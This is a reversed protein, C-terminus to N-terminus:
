VASKRRRKKRRKPAIGYVRALINALGSKEPHDHIWMGTHPKFHRRFFDDMVENGTLKNPDIRKALRDYEGDSIISQNLIEYAYAAVAVKIRLRTQKCYNSTRPILDAVLQPAV